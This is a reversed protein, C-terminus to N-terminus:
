FKSKENVLVLGASGIVAMGAWLIFPLGAGLVALSNGLPPAALSGLNSFVLVLGIATGAYAPEIGEVENTMTLIVAMFGDRALGAMIVAAWILPGSVFSLIGFGTIFLLAAYILVRKRSNLRDSWLAIPVVFIMSALHFSALAGDASAAPWGIGQLYLSLYGLVGQIGGNIGLLALGILWINRIRGVHLLRFWVSKRTMSNEAEMHVPMAPLLLWPVALLISLFGYLFLVNRWGGLWPSLVTESIISSSLFGFAMGMSTVGMALGLQRRPFWVGCTKTVNLPILSSFLSFLMVSALLSIFNFSLGRLAGAIGAALTATILVKKSGFHDSLPGGALFTLMGPLAGVGWILGVQVLNLNLETSIEKFLVALCMSPVAVSLTNTLTALALINWRENTEVAATIMRFHIRDHSNESFQNISFSYRISCNIFCITKVLKFALYKLKLNLYPNDVKIYQVTAM